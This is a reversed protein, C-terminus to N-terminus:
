GRHDGGRAAILEDAPAWPQSGLLEAPEGLVLHERDLCRDTVEAIRGSREGVADRGLGAGQPQRRSRRPARAALSKGVHTNSVLIEDRFWSPNEAFKPRLRLHTSSWSLPPSRGLRHHGPLRVRAGGDVAARSAGLLDALKRVVGPSALPM